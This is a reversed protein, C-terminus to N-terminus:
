ALRLSPLNWLWNLLIILSEKENIPYNPINEDDLSAIKNHFEILTNWADADMRQFLCLEEAYEPAYRSICGLRDTLMQPTISSDTSRMSVQSLKKLIQISEDESVNNSKDINISLAERFLSRGYTNLETYFSIFDIDYATTYSLVDAIQYLYSIDQQSLVSFKDTIEQELFNWEQEIQKEVSDDSSNNILREINKARYNSSSSLKSSNDDIMQLYALATNGINLANFSDAFIDIKLFECYKICADEPLPRRFRLYDHITSKSTSSKESLSIAEKCPSVPTDKRFPEYVTNFFANWFYPHLEAFKELLAKNRIM